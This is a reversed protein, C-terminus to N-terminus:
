QCGSDGNIRVPNGVNTPVNHFAQCIFDTPFHCGTNAYEAIRVTGLWWWNSILKFGNTGLPYELCFGVQQNNQNKGDVWFSQVLNAVSTSAVAVERANTSAAHASPTFWFTGALLLLCIVGTVLGLRFGPTRFRDLRSSFTTNM